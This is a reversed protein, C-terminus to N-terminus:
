LFRNRPYMKHCSSCQLPGFVCDWIGDNCISYVGTCAGVISDWTDFVGDWIDNKLLSRNKRCMKLPSSRQLPPTSSQWSQLLLDSFCVFWDYHHHHIHLLQRFCFIISLGLTHVSIHFNVWFLSVRLKLHSKWVWWQAILSNILQLTIIIINIDM